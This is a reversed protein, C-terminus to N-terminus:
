GESNFSAVYFCRCFGRAPNKLIFECEVCPIPMSELAQKISMRQGNLRHCKECSGGAIEVQEVVGSKLLERLCMERAARAVKTPNKHEEDLFLAMSYYISSLSQLDGIKMHKAILDNFIAWITDSDSSHKTRSRDFEPGTVGWEELNRLWRRRFSGRRADAAELAKEEAESAELSIAQAETVLQRESGVKWILITNRCEPCIRKRKPFADFRYSCYPCIPSGDVLAAGTSEQHRSQRSATAWVNLRIGPSKGQFPQFMSVPVGFLEGRPYKRTVDKSIEAPLYGLTRRFERGGDLNWIGVVEIANSDEPCPARVLELHRDTGHMFAVAYDCRPSFSIGAVPVDYAIKGRAGKPRSGDLRIIHPPDGSRRYDNGPAPHDNVPAVYEPRLGLRALFRSIITSRGLRSM